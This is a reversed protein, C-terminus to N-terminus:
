DRAAADAEDVAILNDLDCVNEGTESRTCLYAVIAVIDERPMYNAGDPDLPQFQPMLMAYGPVDFENPYYIAQYLYEEATVGSIRTIARDAVENLPPGTQGDWDIGAEADQLVHCGMCAYNQIVQAGREVPDDPPNLVRDVLPDIASALYTEEDPHVEIFAFMQGHGGGCLEACVVRYRGEKIPTFRAQTTRGPLLDQKIRMEPVWFAHIVDETRMEMRVPQGIYTHLTNSTVRQDIRPDEYEFTWAYRAGVAQVVLEDDKPETIDVWVQYSYIVLALVIVAPIATWVLELTTNGHITPGDTDDGPRRRFRIVSYLLLGQVLLFIAGGIGLMLRFLEDIQQAEASGQAAFALPTLTSILFGGVALGATVVILAIIVLATNGNRNNNGLDM